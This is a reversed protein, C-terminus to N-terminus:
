FEFDLTEDFGDLNDDFGQKSMKLAFVMEPWFTQDQLTIGVRILQPLSNKEEWNYIWSAKKDFAEKGFYSITIEAVNELLIVEEPEWEQNELTPYFPTLIVKIVKDAKDFKVEFLQLGKRSTSASFVSVFKLKDRGGQFSFSNDNETFDDRLPRISSLYRKFFHYVVAKENVEAIKTEGKDWSEAGIKLSGFLLVVM